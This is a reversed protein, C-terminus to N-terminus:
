GRYIGGRKLKQRCQFNKAMLKQTKDTIGEDGGGKGTGLGAHGKIVPMLARGKETLVYALRKRVTGLRCRSWLEM